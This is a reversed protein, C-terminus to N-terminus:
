VIQGNEAERSAINAASPVGPQLDAIKAVDGLRQCDTAQIKNVCIQARFRSQFPGM